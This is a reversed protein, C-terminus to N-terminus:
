LRGAFARCLLDLATGDKVQDYTCRLVRWGLVAAFSYKLCDEAYGAGSTHRTVGKSFNGGELELATRFNPWALDFRWQRGISEAFRYEELPTPIGAGSLSRLLDTKLAIARLMARSPRLQSTGPKPLFAQVAAPEAM